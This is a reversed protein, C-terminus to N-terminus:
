CFASIYRPVATYAALRVGHEVIKSDSLGSVSSICLVAAQQM